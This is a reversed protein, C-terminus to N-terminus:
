LEFDNTNNTSQTQQKTAEKQEQQPSKSGSHVPQAAPISEMYSGTFQILDKRNLDRGFVTGLHEAADKIAYSVASPAAMMVAAAKIASIDSARSGSDTQLDKAGVGDHYEWEGSVPNLYHLRVVAVISNFMPVVSKIDVRWKQFIRTLLFEIKDIPIYRAAKDKGDDGKVKAMPHNKIWKDHPPANLLSNLVDNKFAEEPEKHLEALSPLKHSSM